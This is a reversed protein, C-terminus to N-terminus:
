AAFRSFIIFLVFNEVPTTKASTKPFFPNEASCIVLLIINKPRFITFIQKSLIIFEKLGLFFFWVNKSRRQEHFRSKFNFHILGVTDTAFMKTFTYVLNHIFFCIWFGAIANLNESTPTTKTTSRFTLIKNLLCSSSAEEFFSSFTFKSM